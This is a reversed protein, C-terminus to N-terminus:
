NGRYKIFVSDDFINLSPKIEVRNANGLQATWSLNIQRSDGSYFYEITHRNVGVLEAGSFVLIDLPLEFYSYATPNLLSFELSNSDSYSSSKRTSSNFSINEILVGLRQKHYEEYNAISKSIRSWSMRSIVFSYEEKQNLPKVSFDIVYKEENPLIFNNGCSVATEGQKFCYDFSVYFNPNENKVLIALDDSELSPFVNVQSFVLQKVNSQFNLNNEVM